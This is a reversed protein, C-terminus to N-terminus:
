NYSLMESGAARSDTRMTARSINTRPKGLQTRFIDKDTTEDGELYKDYASNNDGGRCYTATNVVSIASNVPLTALYSEEEIDGNAKLTAGAVNLVTSRYADLLIEPQYTWTNDIKVTSLWVRRTDGIIQSKIYFNPCYVRVTGDYGDLRSGVELSTITTLDM